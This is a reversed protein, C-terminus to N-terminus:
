QQTKTFKVLSVLEIEFDKLPHFQLYIQCSLYSCFYIGSLSNYKEPLQETKFVLMIYNRESTASMNFMIVVDFKM